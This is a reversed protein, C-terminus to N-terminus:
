PSAGMTIDLLSSAIKNLETNAEEDTIVQHRQQECINHWQRSLMIADKRYTDLQSLAEIAELLKNGSLLQEIKRFIDFREEDEPSPVVVVMATRRKEMVERVIERYERVNFEEKIFFDSVGYDKFAIRQLRHLAISSPFAESTVIIVDTQRQRISDLLVTWQSTIRSEQPEFDLRINLVVLDFVERAILDFADTRKGATKIEYGLPQLPLKLDERWDHEDDVILIKPM